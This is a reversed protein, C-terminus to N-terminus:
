RISARSPKTHAVSGPGPAPARLPRRELRRPPPSPLCGRDTGHATAPRARRAACRLPDDVLHEIRRPGPANQDRRPHARDRSPRLEEDVPSLHRRALHQILRQLRQAAAEGPRDTVPVRRYAVDDGETRERGALQEAAADERELRMATMEDRGRALQHRQRRIQVAPRRRQEGAHLGREGEDHVPPRDGTLLHEHGPLTHDPQEDRRQERPHRQLGDDRHIGEGCSAPGREGHARRGRDLGPPGCVREAGAAGVDGELEGAIRARQVLHKAGRPALPRTTTPEHYPVRRAAISSPVWKWRPRSVTRLLWTLRISGASAPRHVLFRRRAKARSSSRRM